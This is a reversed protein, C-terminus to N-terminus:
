HGFSVIRQKLVKFTSWNSPTQENVEIVSARDHSHETAFRIQKEIASAGGSSLPITDSCDVASYEADNSCTNTRQEIFPLPKDCKELPLSTLSTKTDISVYEDSDLYDLHERLKKDRNKAKLVQMKIQAKTQCERQVKTGDSLVITDYNLSQETDFESRMM